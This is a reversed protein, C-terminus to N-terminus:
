ARRHLGIFLSVPDGDPADRDAFDDRLAELRALLESLDESSLRLGLRTSSLLAEDGHRAIASQLEATFAEAMASTVGGGGGGAPGVDLGWSRRTALYPKERSGRSGRRPEGARLFGGDVLIRVHHLVTGPDKGLADALEKNTQEEDLCLRLIQLRLPHALARHEAATAPRRDPRRDPGRDPERDHTPVESM